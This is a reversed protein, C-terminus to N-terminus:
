FINWFKFSISSFSEKMNHKIVSAHEYASSRDETKIAAECQTLSTDMDIVYKEELTIARISKEKHWTEQIETLTEEAKDFKGQYIDDMLREVIVIM